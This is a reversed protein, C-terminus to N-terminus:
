MGCVQRRFLTKRTLILPLICKLPWGVLFSDQLNRVSYTEFWDSWSIKCYALESIISELLRVIFASILSRPYSSLGAGKNNAHVFTLSERTAISAWNLTVAWVQSIKKGFFLIKENKSIRYYMMNYTFYRM